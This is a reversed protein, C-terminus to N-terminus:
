PLPWDLTYRYKSVTVEINRHAATSLRDPIHPPM